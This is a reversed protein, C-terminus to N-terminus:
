TDNSQTPKIQPQAAIHATLTVNLATMKEDAPDARTTTITM